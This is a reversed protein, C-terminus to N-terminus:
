PLMEPLIAKNYRFPQSATTVERGTAHGHVTGIGEVVQIPNGYQIYNIHLSERMGFFAVWVVVTIFKRRQAYAVNPDFSFPFYLPYNFM